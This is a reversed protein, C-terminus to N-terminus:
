ERRRRDSEGRKVFEYKKEELRALTDDSHPAEWASPTEFFDQQMSRNIPKFDLSPAEINIAVPPPPSSDASIYASSNYAEGDYSINTAAEYPTGSDAPANTQVGQLDQELNQVPQDVASAELVPAHAQIPTFTQQPTEEEIINVLEDEDDEVIKSAESDEDEEDEIIEDDEM